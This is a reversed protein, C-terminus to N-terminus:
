PNQDYFQSILDIAQHLKPHNNGRKWVAYISCTINPLSYTKIIPSSIDLHFGYNIVVENDAQLSTLLLIPDDVKRVIEPPQCNNQHFLFEIYEEIDTRFQSGIVILGQDELDHFTITEKASLPNTQLMSVLVPYERIKEYSFEKSKPDSDQGICIEVDVENNLLAERRSAQQLFIFEVKCGLDHETFYKQLVPIDQAIRLFSFSGIKLTAKSSSLVNLSDYFSQLLPKWQKYLLQGENTVRIPHYNREFLKVGLYQELRSIQHSLTSQEIYNAVAADSFSHMEAIDIFLKIQYMSIDCMDKAPM